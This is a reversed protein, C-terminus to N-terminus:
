DEEKFLQMPTLIRPIHLGLKTNIIQIHREKNANALHNCNWTLLFDIKMVSACALHYADRYDGKPMVFQNIYLEAVDDIEDNSELVPINEVLKIIKNKNPYDSQTLEAITYDSTFLEFASKQGNWWKQTIDVFAEIGSRKDYFYNPVTADLYISKKM